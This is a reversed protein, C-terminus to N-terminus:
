NVANKKESDIGETSEKMFLIKITYIILKFDLFVSYENIYMLDLKLKDKPTTNYKGFVQAYGTLGAKVKLRLGFEPFTELYEAAIEPREPRPGVLSMEGKIINIIQPLEDFRIMRIIKGVPTIRSDNQASLQAGHEEANIIMSRFKYVDFIKGDKTLRKQKYIIPGRDYMKIILSTVGMFPLAIIFIPISILLDMLRKIFEQGHNLGWKNAVLLPTDMLYLNDTGRRIIEPIEPVLFLSKDTEFCYVTLFDRLDKRVEFLMISDYYSCIDILKEVNIDENVMKTIFYRNKRSVIKGSIEEPDKGYILLINHHENIEFYIWNGLIGWLIIFITQIIQILFFYLFVKYQFLMAFTVISFLMNSLLTALSVSYVIESVRYQGIKYGEYIKTIMFLVIFYCLSILYYFNIQLYKLLFIFIFLSIFSIIYIYINFLLFKLKKM